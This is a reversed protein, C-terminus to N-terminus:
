AHRYYGFTKYRITCEGNTPAALLDFYGSQNSVTFTVPAGSIVSDVVTLAASTESTTVAVKYYAVGDPANFDEVYLDVTFSSRLFVSLAFRKVITGVNAVVIGTEEQLKSLKEVSKLPGLVAKKGHSICAYDLLLNNGDTTSVFTIKPTAGAEAYFTCTAVQTELGGAVNLTGFLTSGSVGGVYGNVNFSARSIVIVSYYGSSKIPSSDLFCVDNADFNIVCRKGNLAVNDYSVVATNFDGLVMAASNESLDGNKVYNVSGIPEFSGIYPQKVTTDLVRAMTNPLSTKANFDAIPVDCVGEFNIVLGKTDFPIGGNAADLYCGNFTIDGQCQEDIYIMEGTQTEATCYNFRLGEVGHSGYIKLFPDASLFNINTFTNNNFESLNSPASGTKLILHLMTSDKWENFFSQRYFAVTDNSHVWDELFCNKITSNWFGATEIYSDQNASVATLGDLDIKITDDIKLWPKVTSTTPIIIANTSILRLTLRGGENKVVNVTDDIIYSDGDVDGNIVVENSIDIAKQLISTIVGGNVAGLARIDISSKEVLEAIKLTGAPIIDMGNQVTGTKVLFLNMVRDTLRVHQGVQFKGTALESTTTYQADIFDQVSGDTTTPISSATISSIATTIKEIVDEAIIFQTYNPASPVTLPQITYPFLESGSYSWLKYDSNLILEDESNLIYGELFNGVVNYGEAQYQKEIEKLLKIQTDIGTSVGTVKVFESGGADLTNVYLGGSIVGSINPTVEITVTMTEKPLITYIGSGDSAIGNVAVIKMSGVILLEQITIARIRSNNVISIPYNPTSDGINGVNIQSPYVSVNIGKNNAWSSESNFTDTQSTDTDYETLDPVTTPM